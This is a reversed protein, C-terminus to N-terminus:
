PRNTYRRSAMEDGMTHIKFKKVTALVSMLSVMPRSIVLYGYRQSKKLLLLLPLPQV